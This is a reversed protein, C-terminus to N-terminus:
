HLPRRHRSEGRAPATPALASLSDAFAKAASAMAASNAPRPHIRSPPMAPDRETISTVGCSSLALTAALALLLTRM